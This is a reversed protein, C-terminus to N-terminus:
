LLAFNCAIVSSRSYQNSFYIGIEVVRSLREVKNM